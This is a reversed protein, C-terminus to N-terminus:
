DPAALMFATAFPDRVLFRRIRAVDLPTGDAVLHEAELSTTM